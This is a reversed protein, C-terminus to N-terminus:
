NAARVFRLVQTDAATSVKVFYIGPLWSSVNIKEQHTGKLYNITTAHGVIRGQADLFEFRVTGSLDSQYRVTVDSSSPNPFIDIAPAAKQQMLSQAAHSFPINSPDAILPSIQGGCPSQSFPYPDPAPTIKTTGGAGNCPDDGWGNPPIIEGTACCIEKFETYHYARGNEDAEFISLPFLNNGMQYAGLGEREIHGLLQSSYEGCGMYPECDPMCAEFVLFACYNIGPIEGFEDKLEQTMEGIYVLGYGVGVNNPHIEVYDSEGNPLNYYYLPGEEGFNLDALYVCAEFLFYHEVEGEGIPKTYPIVCAQGGEGITMEAFYLWNNKIPPWGQGNLSLAFVLKFVLVCVIAKSLLSVLKM